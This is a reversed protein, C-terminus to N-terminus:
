PGPPAGERVAGADIAPGAYILRMGWDADSPRSPIEMVAISNSHLWGNGVDSWTGNRPDFWQARYSSMPRVARIQSAKSGKEFYAMYIDKERTYACYAWGEYGEIVGSKNPSILAPEPVLDRYRTGISFAFDKLYKMQSASNWQFSEWMKPTASPSIDAGWIGEAGYIQGAFGGSLFSGYMGSRVYQDDQPTGGAAGVRYGGRHNGIFGAYYPEGNLAPQPALSNYIETLYWYFDHERRNGTQHLAVWSDEGWNVLTSPNANATLLTGFPPPGYKTLVMQIAPKFEDAAISQNDTDFHIPSLVTNNAQYRSFIYEVFRAYSDPWPYYKKWAQSADRRTVEIIPIFGHANLYDIKRDLYDFYKPNIRDVDAFSQEFGPVKGPFLFPQGGENEMNKARSETDIWHQDKDKASGAGTELWASRVVTHAPDDMVLHAARGDNNWNPWASIIGIVNFGQEQRFRVYDKFGATPGIPRQKDDDYWPFVNTGAAWWTDGVIFFPTGDAQELAHHNATPRLFGRRATNEEKEAETWAIADFGGTQNDLGSDAPNSRSKWTWTGPETAVMRVRFTNGGDWFGYVRKKFNPGTLDVWVTVDTYANAFTQAATLTVEQKEWVHVKAQAHAAPAASAFLLPISLLNCFLRRASKQRRANFM